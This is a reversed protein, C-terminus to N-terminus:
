EPLAEEIKIEVRPASKDLRKYMHLEVVFKDDAYAHGQLADLLLKERNALDAGRRQFYVWMEVRVPGDIPTIDHLVCIEEIAKKYDKGQKSLYIGPMGRATRYVSNTSPPLPLILFIDDSM